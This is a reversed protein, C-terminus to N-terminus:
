ACGEGVETGERDRVHNIPEGDPKGGRSTWPQQSSILASCDPFPPEFLRLNSSAKRKMLQAPNGNGLVSAADFERPCSTSPHLVKRGSKM